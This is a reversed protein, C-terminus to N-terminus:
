WTILQRKYVDLHTYSVPYRFDEADRVFDVYEQYICRQGGYEGAVKELVEGGKELISVNAGERGFLVKSVSRKHPLVQRKYM